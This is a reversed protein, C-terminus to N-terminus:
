GAPPLSVKVSAGKINKITIRGNYERVIENCISLGLGKGEGTARTTFFPEMVRDILHAPIGQGNDAIIICTRGKEVFTRITIKKSANGADDGLADGANIIVNLFVQGMRHKHGMVVHLDDAFDTEIEIDELKLQNQVLTITEAMVQNINVEELEFGSKKDFEGLRQIIGAARDVQGDIENIVQALQDDPIKIGEDIMMKLFGSGMKISNLPQNLEHVIGDSMVNLTSMQKLLDWATVLEVHLMLAPLLILDSTLAAFMTLVILAGFVSTPQFHSFLLVCFGLSITITTFIIPVGVNMVTERLARDKDLDKKFERNYRVLYHITDDVALGIAISAILNTEVSLKIACIGMIGFNLVIPFLNTAIAVLGVKMSLFLVFMIGFIIVMTLGLSKIQSRTILQSSQAIVMGIGTARFVLEGKYKENLHSTIEDKLRLFETSSSIRTRLVINTKNMEPNMFRRYVEDGLISKFTNVLMRVEYGEQPLAYNKKKYGNEAYNVLMLFDAFSVTKDVGALTNLFLQAEAIKKLSEPTEFYYEEKAEIVVTVPFSGAMDKYVDRFNQSIQTYEKFYGVPNTEVKIFFLGAFAVLTMTGLTAFAKKRHKLNIEVIFELLRNLYYNVRSSDKSEGNESTTMGPKMPPMLALISPVLTFMIVLLSLMGFCSFFAFERIGEIRNVFLSGLGVVTTLVALLTPFAVHSYCGVVAQASSIGPESSAERYGSMIHMCYATGVAILFVPVIMTLVTVPVKLISMMGFTWILGTLVALVPVVVGQMSRFLFFLVVIIIAFAVPPLFFFDKKTYAELTEAVVPMGIQYLPLGQKEHDIIAQVSAVIEKHDGGSIALTIISTKGDVSIFNRKFLEVPEIINKFDDVSWRSTLDIKKKIGPLSDIRSVGEIKLFKEGLAALQKFGDETFFGTSKAVVLIIEESGFIQKFDDYYKAENLDELVLDYMSSRFRLDKLSFAFFATVALVAMIVLVPRRVLSQLLVKKKSSIQHTQQNSM